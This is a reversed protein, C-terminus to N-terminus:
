IFPWNLIRKAHLVTRTAVYAGAFGFALISLSSGMFALFLGSVTAAAVLVMLWLEISLFFASAARWVRLTLAIAEKINKVDHGM